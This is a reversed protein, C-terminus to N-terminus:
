RPRADGPRTEAEPWSTYLAQRAILEIRKLVRSYKLGNRKYGKSPTGIYQWYQPVSTGPLVFNQLLQPAGNVGVAEVVAWGM